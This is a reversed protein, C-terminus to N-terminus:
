PTACASMGFISSPRTVYRLVSSDYVFSSLWSASSPLNGDATTRVATEPLMWGSTSASRSPMAPIACVKLAYRSSRLSGGLTAVLTFPKRYINHKQGTCTVGCANIM